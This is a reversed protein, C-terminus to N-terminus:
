RRRCSPSGPRGRAARVVAAADRCLDLARGVRVMLALGAAGITVGGIAVARIGFRPVIRQSIGAAVGILVAVPLFAFGTEIPNFHLIEQLYLTGFFFNAFMGAGLFFLAGDGIALARQPLDCDSSRRACGARSSVFPAILAIAMAGRVLTKASGWGYTQTKVIVYILLALGATISIAGLIDPAADEPEGRTGPM